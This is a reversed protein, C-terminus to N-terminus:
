SGPPAAAPTKKKNKKAAKEVLVLETGSLYDHWCRGRRDFLCWWYGLGLCAASLLAALCRRLAQLVTPSEGESSVLKIRWAQMGLTQGSKLWFASFFGFVTLLAILQVLQPHLPEANGGAIASHLGMGIAVALMILPLVLFTDYLMAMLRRPLAPAPSTPM